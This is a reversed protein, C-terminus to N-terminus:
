RRRLLALGGLGLLAATGPEPLPANAESDVVEPFPLVPSFLSTVDFHEREFTPRPLTRQHEDSNLYAALAAAASAEADVAMVGKTITGILDVRQRDATLSILSWSGEADDSLTIRGIPFTGLDTKDFNFFTVDLRSTSVEASGSSGELDIAGGAISGGPVGVSTDFEVTPFLEAVFPHSPLDAGFPDQYISGASLELLIAASTWDSDPTTVLLDSSHYGALVDPTDVPAITVSHTTAIFAAAAPSAVSASLVAATIPSLRTM